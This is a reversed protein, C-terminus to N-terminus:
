FSLGFTLYARPAPTDRVVGGETAVNVARLPIGIGARVPFPPLYSLSLNLGLEAGVSALTTSQDGPRGARALCDASCWTRGADFFATGWLRDLYVPMVRYGRQVLEIPFRWELTGAAARDGFQVGDAYGRVPLDLEDGLSVFTSLPFASVGGGTGGITYGPTFAGRDAGGALRLGLVHRAYGWANFPLYHQARGTTRLYGRGSEDDGIEDLYRRGEVSGAVVFGNEPSVSYEYRRSTSYGLTAAGGAETPLDPIALGLDNASFSYDRQRAGVGLSLWSFSRFRPRTFTAVLSASRERELLEAQLPENDIATRTITGVHDWDQSVSAGLVPNGLGTFIYAAGADTRLERPRVAVSVGYSHRRIVDQGGVAAGLALGLENDESALIPTWASPLVSPIASYPRAPGGATRSVAAIDAGQERVEPRLPPAATWRSPDFPIRALHYGDSRYLTLAIWRGDPSVDPDFAGTLVRTIRQLRGDTLDYAYLDSIGSRDSSFVVYRGDPSLSPSTDVARDSTLERVVRGTAADLIVIDYLAGTRWRAVAIRTGDPSWRPKTWHVDPSPAGLERAGSGDADMVVPVNTGAGGRIAVIRGTARHVDPELLRARRTIRDRDGNPRIVYLDSYYRYPDVADVMTTVLSGDARWSSATLSTRPDLVRVGGESWLRTSAEERGTGQAFAITRGDPSWRPAETRRGEKVLIEPETIGERRLSDALATYETRLSDHWQRWSATFTQGYARKAAGDAGYSFLIRRGMKEVWEGHKDDGFRDGLYDMFLSGYAYPTSGGPWSVPHGTAQDISFFEDELVATRLTMDYLTARVRGARTLRSELVTALGEQSWRPVLINPFGFANRGLARRILRPIGDAYDLHFIHALEHSVVLQLWDDYFALEPTDVPPHAYVVIRNTPLPTAYGNAYDVNDSLVLDIRGRPARVLVERLAAHATEAREAARRALPELAPTFHVRFHETDMTRWEADPPVQAGLPLALLLAVVLLATRRLIM